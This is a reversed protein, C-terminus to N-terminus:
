TFSNLRFPLTLRYSIKLYGINSQKKFIVMDQFFVQVITHESIGKM